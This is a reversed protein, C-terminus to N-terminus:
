AATGVLGARGHVRDPVVRIATWGPEPHTTGLEDAAESGVYHTLLRRRLGVLGDPVLDALREETVPAAWGTVFVRRLDPRPEEITLSVRAGAGVYDAWAAGPSATLWLDQGDWDFWLPVVHPTGDDRLCALQARHRGTLLATVEDDDLVRRPGVPVGGAAGGHEPRWDPAGLRLSVDTALDRVALAVSTVHDPTARQRPIGAVIAAVPHRGDRCIAAALEVQDADETRVVGPATPELHGSAVVSGLAVADAAAGTRAQGVQHVARVVHSGDHTAVVIRDPGDPRVLAVAEDPDITRLADALARQLGRDDLDPTPVVRRLAPGVHYAGDPDQHLWERSRLTNLLAFLGSRSGAVRSELAGSTLGADAGAVAEILDLARGVSPVNSSYDGM